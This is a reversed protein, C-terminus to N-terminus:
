SSLFDELVNRFLSLMQQFFRVVQEFGVVKQNVEKGEGKERDEEKERELHSAILHLTPRGDVRESRASFLVGDKSVAVCGDRWIFRVSKSWRLCGSM